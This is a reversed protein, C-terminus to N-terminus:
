TSCPQTEKASERALQCQESGPELAVCENPRTPYIACLNDPGLFPCPITDGWAVLWGVDHGHLAGNGDMRECKEVITPERATDVWDAEILFKRCCAGCRRCDM